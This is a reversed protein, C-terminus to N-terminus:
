DDSEDWERDSDTWSDSESDEVYQELVLELSLDGEEEDGWEEEDQQDPCMCDQVRVEAPLGGGFFRVMRLEGLNPCPSDDAHRKRLIHGMDFLTTKKWADTTWKQQRHYPLSNHASLTCDRCSPLAPCTADSCRYLPTDDGRAECWVCKAPADNNPQPHAEDYESQLRRMAAADAKIAKIRTLRAEDFPPPTNDPDSM